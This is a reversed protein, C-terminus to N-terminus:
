LLLYLAQQNDSSVWGSQQLYETALLSYISYSILRLSIDEAYDLGLSIDAENDPAVVGYLHLFYLVYNKVIFIAKILQNFFLLLCSRM